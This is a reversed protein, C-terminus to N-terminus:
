RAGRGIQVLKRRTRNFLELAAPDLGDALHDRYDEHACYGFVACPEASQVSGKCADVLECVAASTALRFVEDNAGDAYMPDVKGALYPADAELTVAILYPDGLSQARAYARQADEKSQATRAIGDPALVDAAGRARALKIARLFGAEDPFQGAVGACRQRFGEWAQVAAARVGSDGSWTADPAVPPSVRQCRHFALTAYFLGGEDPRQMADQIFAAYNDTKEFRARMRASPHVPVAAVPAPEVAPAPAPASLKPPPAVIQAPPDPWLVLLAIGMAAAGATLALRAPTM